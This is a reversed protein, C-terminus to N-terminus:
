LYENEFFIINSSRTLKDNVVDYVRYQHTTAEYGMFVLKILNLDLKAHTERPKYSYTLYGFIYLHLISLKKKTFAEYLSKSNPSILLWNQLYNVTNM